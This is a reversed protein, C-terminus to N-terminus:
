VHPRHCGGTCPGAGGREDSEARVGAWSRSRGRPASRRTCFQSSLFYARRANGGRESVQCGRDRNAYLCRVSAMGVRQRYPSSYPCSLAATVLPFNYPVRLIIPRPRIPPLMVLRSRWFPCRTTEDKIETLLGDTGSSRFAGGRCARKFVHDGLEGSWAGDPDHHRGPVRRLLGDVGDHLQEAGTVAMM